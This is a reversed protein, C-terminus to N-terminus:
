CIPGPGAGTSAGGDKGDGHGREKLGAAWIPRGNNRYKNHYIRNLKVGCSGWIAVPPHQGFTGGGSVQRDPGGGTPIIIQPRIM